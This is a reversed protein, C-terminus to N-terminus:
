MGNPFDCTGGGSCTDNVMGTSFFQDIQDQLPQLAHIAEHAGNDTQPTLNTPPAPNMPHTNWISLASSQAGMVPTMGYVQLVSPGQLPIAMTRAMAETVQNSVLSDGVSMQMSLQKKPVGALPANLIYPAVTAPESFDFDMQAVALLLQKDLYDSYSGDILLKFQPWEASRQFLMSWFGGPVGLVGQTIDPDYGMFTTGMIGGLSIGWYFLKTPDAFMKTGAMMKPDMALKGRVTRALVMTNILSQQMRDTVYPINNFDTLAEGIAGNGGMTTPNEATSLGIWDTAFVIYGKEAALKRVARDRAVDAGTGVFGHGFVVLPLPKTMAMPPVILTFPAEYTGTLLPKGSADVALKTVPNTTDVSTLFQPVTFTGHLVRLTQANPNDTSSTITYGIGSDGAAALAQDRMSLLHSTIYEDSGTFFDWAVVLSARTVGATALSSLIAPMRAAELQSMKDAPAHGDAIAAFQPPPTPLKGSVTKISTTIAAAYRHNPLLRQLPRIMIAQRDSDDGKITLDVESFHAVLKNSTMDVLVTAASPSLSAQPNDPTVLSTADIREDFYALIPTSPSFGDALNYRSPDLQKGTAGVIPLMEASLAVRFGTKTTSDANLYIANPFPMMCTGNTRLPSCTAPLTDTLTTVPAPGADASAATSSSSCGVGALGPVVALSTFALALSFPVSTKM